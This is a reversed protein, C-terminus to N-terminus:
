NLEESGGKTVEYFKKKVTDHMLVLIQKKDGIEMPRILNKM